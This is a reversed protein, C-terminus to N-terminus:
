KLLAGNIYWDDWKSFYAMIRVFGNRSLLEHLKNRSAEVFNHEVTILSIKHATFDFSNLIDFESGETDVSMYDIEAPCDHRKLLDNLSVTEVLYKDGNARVGAQGDHGSFADVTSFEATPAENFTLRQGTETWVCRLDISCARNATLASHWCRAPEALVGTWGYQKELLWTNSLSVGDTAGFEVFVGNRKGKLFYLVLLDQFLQSKSAASHVMCYNAFQVVADAPHAGRLDRLQLISNFTKSLQNLAENSM